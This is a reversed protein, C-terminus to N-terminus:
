SGDGLQLIIDEIAEVIKDKPIGALSIPEGIKIITKKWLRPFSFHPFRPFALKNPLVEEGGETWVPLILIGDLFLRRFGKKFRRIKRGSPSFKFDEGRFTRGSEAFLIQNIGRASNDRMKELARLEERPNGRAIPLCFERFPFFWWKDYYNEKDAVSFFVYKLNFLYWPFPLFPLLAPDWLSPHNSILVVGEGGPRLKRKEYGSIEVRGTIRLITFLLGGVLGVTWVLFLFKCKERM